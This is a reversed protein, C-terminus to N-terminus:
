GRTTLAIVGAVTSATAGATLLTRLGGYWRPLLGGSVARIDMLYQVVLGVSITALAFLPSGLLAIWAVLSPLISLTLPGWRGISARDEPTDCLLCGWRVGGLFSLIVAGYIALARLAIAQVAPDPWWTGIAGAFFPLLGGLGLAAAPTPIREPTM